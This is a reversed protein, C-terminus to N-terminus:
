VLLMIEYANLAISRAPFQTIFVCRECHLFSKMQLTLFSTDTYEQTYRSFQWGHEKTYTFNQWNLAPHVCYIKIGGMVDPTSLSSSLWDIKARFCNYQRITNPNYIVSIDLQCFLM